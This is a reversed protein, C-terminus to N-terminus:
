ELARKKVPDYYIETIRRVTEGKEKFAHFQVVVDVCKYLLTRLAATGGSGACLNRGEESELARLIMMEFAESVCGAHLGMVSGPHGSSVGVIYEYVEGGRCEGVIARDPRMRMMTRLLKKISNRGERDYILHVHNPHNPLDIERVDELTILREDPPIFEFIANAFTTKGSGTAGSVVINLKNEVAVRMFDIYREDRLCSTLVAEFPFLWGPSSLPHVIRSYIGKAALEAHSRRVRAPKRITISIQEVCPPVVICVREGGPLAGDFIPHDFDVDGDSNNYKAILTAVRRCWEADIYPNAIVDGAPRVNIWQPNTLCEWGKSSEVFVEHQRNICIETLADDDLCKRIPELYELLAAANNM